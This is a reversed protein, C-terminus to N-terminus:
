SASTFVIRISRLAGCRRALSAIADFALGRLVVKGAASCALPISALARGVEVIAFVSLSGKNAKWDVGSPM